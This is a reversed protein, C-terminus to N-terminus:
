SPPPSFFFPLLSCKDNRWAKRSAEGETEQYTVGARSLPANRTPRRSQAEHRIYQIHSQPIHKLPLDGAQQLSLSGLSFGVESQSASLAAWQM